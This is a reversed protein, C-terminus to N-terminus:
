EPEIEPVADDGPPALRAAIAGRAVTLVVTPAVELEVTDDRLTRVTGHIGGTTVVADGESLASMLAQHQAIRRRQPRVVLFFFAAALIVLYVVILM